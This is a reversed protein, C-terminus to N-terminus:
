SEGSTLRSFLSKFRSQKKEQQHESSLASGVKELEASIEFLASAAAETIGIAQLNPEDESFVVALKQSIPPSYPTLDPKLGELAPEITPENVPTKDSVNEILRRDRKSLKRIIAKRDRKPLAKFEELYNPEPNSIEQM